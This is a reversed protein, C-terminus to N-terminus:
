ALPLLPHLLRTLRQISINDIFIRPHLFLPLLQPLSEKLVLFRRGCTSIVSNRDLSSLGILPSCETTNNQEGFRSAGEALATIGRDVGTEPFYLNIAVGVEM